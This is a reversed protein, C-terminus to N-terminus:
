IEEMKAELKWEFPNLNETNAACGKGTGIDWHQYLPPDFPLHMRCMYPDDVTNGKGCFVCDGRSNTHPFWYGSLVAKIDPHGDIKIKPPMGEYLVKIDQRSWFSELVIPKWFSFLVKEFSVKDQIKEREKWDGEERYVLDHAVWQLFTKTKKVRKKFYFVLLLLSGPLVIHLLIAAIM